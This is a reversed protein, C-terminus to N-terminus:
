LEPIPEPDVESYVIKGPRSEGTFRERDLSYRIKECKQLRGDGRIRCYKGEDCTIIFSKQEVSYLGHDGEARVLKEENQRSTVTVDTECIIKELENDDNLMVHSPAYSESNVLEFPDADPDVVQKALKAKKKGIIYMDRCTLKTTDDRVIVNGHLETNNTAVDSIMKDAFFRRGARGDSGLAGFMATHNSTESTTGIVHGEAVLSSLESKGSHFLGKTAPAGLASTAFRFTLKDCDLTSKPDVMKVHDIAVAHDLKLSGGNQGIVRDSQGPEAPTLFLELKDSTLVGAKDAIHVAGTFLIYNRDRYFDARDATLTSEPAGDADFGSYLRVKRPEQGKATPKVTLTIINTTLDHVLHDTYLKQMAKVQKGPAPAEDYVTGVVEDECVVRALQSAGKNIPTTKGEGTQFYLTMKKCDLVSKDDVMHVNGLAVAREIKQGSGGGIIRDSDEKTARSLYIELKDCDITGDADVAHVNGYFLVYDRSRYIEAHDATLTGEIKGTEPNISILKIQALTGGKQTPDVSLTIKNRMLDYHLHDAFAQQTKGDKMVVDGDALIFHIGSQSGALRPTEAKEEPKAAAQATKGAEKEPPEYGRGLFITMREGDLTTEGERVHADGVLLIQHKANDILLTDGTATMFRYEAPVPEHDRLIRGVDSSAPRMVVDINSNVQITHRNFDAVFGIGNLDITPSRFYVREGGYCRRTKQDVDGRRTVMVGDSYFIREKWFALIEALPADLQYPQTRWGDGIKDVDADPRIINLVIGDGNLILGNRKGHEAFIIMQLDRDQYVPIKANSFSLGKLTDFNDNAAFLACGALVIPLIASLKKM